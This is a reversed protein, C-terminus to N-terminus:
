DELEECSYNLSRLINKVHEVEMLDSEVRLIKDCDELDINIEGGPFFECLKQIIRMAENQEQINTKFVLVM